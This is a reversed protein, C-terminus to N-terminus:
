FSIIFIGIRKKNPIYVPFDTRGTNQMHNKLFLKIEDPRADPANHLVFSEADEESRLPQGFEIDDTILEYNIREEKLGKEIISVSPKDKRRYIEPYFNSKDSMNTIRILKKRCYGFYKKMEDFHGFFSMLFIDHTGASKAADDCIANINHIGKNFTSKRLEEIVEADFDIATIQSVHPALFIDLRGLGCGVDCLTDEAELYPTIKDALNEHYNTYESADLFRKISQSTWIYSM